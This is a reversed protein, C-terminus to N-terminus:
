MNIGPHQHDNSVDVTRKVVIASESNDSAADNDREYGGTKVLTKSKGSSVAWLGSHSGPIRSSGGPQSRSGSGKSQTGSHSTVDSLTTLYHITGHLRHLTEM